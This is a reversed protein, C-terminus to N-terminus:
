SLYQADYYKLDGRLIALRKKLDISYRHFMTSTIKCDRLKQKASFLDDILENVLQRTGATDIFPTLFEPDLIGKLFNDYGDDNDYDDDYDDDTDMSLDIVKDDNSVNIIIEVEDDVVYIIHEKNYNSM